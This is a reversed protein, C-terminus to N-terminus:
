FLIKRRLGRIKFLADEYIRQVGPYRRSSTRSVAHPISRKTGKTFAVTSAVNKTLLFGAIRRRADDDPAVSDKEECSEFGNKSSSFLTGM